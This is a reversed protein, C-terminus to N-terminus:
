SSNQKICKTGRNPHTGQMSHETYDLLLHAELVHM